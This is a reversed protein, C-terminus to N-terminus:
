RANHRSGAAQDMTAIALLLAAALGWVPVLGTFLGSSAPAALAAHIAYIAVAIAAAPRLGVWGDGRVVNVAHVVVAVTLLLLGALGLVGMEAAAQFISSHAPFFGNSTMYQGLGVGTVPHDALTELSDGLSYFRESLSANRATSLLDLFYGAVAIAYVLALTGVAALVALRVRRTAPSTVALVVVLAMGTVTALRAYTLVLTAGTVLAACAVAARWRQPLARGAAWFAALALPMLLFGATHDPNGLTYYHFDYAVNQYKAALLKAPTPFGWDRLFVMDARLLLITLAALFGAALARPDLRSNVLALLLLAPSSVALLAIVATRDPDASGGISVLAGAMLILGGAAVGPPLRVRTRAPFALAAAAAAIAILAAPMLPALWPRSAIGAVDSLLSAPPFGSAAVGFGIAVSSAVRLAEVAAGTQEAPFDAPTATARTM